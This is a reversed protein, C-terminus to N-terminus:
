RFANLVGLLRVDETSRIEASVNRPVLSVLTRSSRRSPARRVDPMPAFHPKGRGTDAMAILLDEDVNEGFGITTTQAGHQELATRAMAVLQSSGTV